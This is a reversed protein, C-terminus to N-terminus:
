LREKGLCSFFLGLKKGMPAELQPSETNNELSLLSASMQGDCQPVLLCDAMLLSSNRNWRQFPLALIHRQEMCFFHIVQTSQSSMLNQVRCGLIIFCIITKSVLHCPIFFPVIWIVFFSSFRLYWILSIFLLSCSASNLGVCLFLWMLHLYDLFCVISSLCLWVSVFFCSGCKPHSYSGRMLYVSVFIEYNSTHFFIDFYIESFLITWPWLPDNWLSLAM